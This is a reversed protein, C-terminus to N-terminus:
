FSRRPAGQPSVSIVPTATPLHSAHELSSSTKPERSVLRQIIIKPISAVHSTTIMVSSWPGLHQLQSQTPLLCRSTRSSIQSAYPSIPLRSLRPRPSTSSSCSRSLPSASAFLRWTQTFHQVGVLDRTTVLLLPLLMCFIIDYSSITM